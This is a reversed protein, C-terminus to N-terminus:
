MTHLIVCLSLMLLGFVQEGVRLHTSLKRCVFFLCFMHFSCNSACQSCLCLVCMQKFVMCTSDLLAAGGVSFVVMVNLLLIDVM